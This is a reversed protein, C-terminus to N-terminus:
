DTNFNEFNDNEILTANIILSDINKYKRISHLGMNTSNIQANLGRYTKM